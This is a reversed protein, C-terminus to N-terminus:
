AGAREAFSWARDAIQPIRAAQEGARASSANGELLRKKIGQAIGLLRFLNFALYWDLSQIADRSTKEYYRAVV